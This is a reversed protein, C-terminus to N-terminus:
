APLTLHDEWGREHQKALEYPLCSHVPGRAPCHQPSTPSENRSPHCFLIHISSCLNSQIASLVIYCPQIHARSRENPGLCRDRSSISLTSHRWNVLRQKQALFKDSTSHCQFVALGFSINEKWAFNFWLLNSPHETHNSSGPQGCLKPLNSHFDKFLHGEVRCHSNRSHWCVRQHLTSCGQTLSPLHFWISPSKLAELTIGSQTWLTRAPQHWGTTTGLSHQSFLNEELQISFLALKWTWGWLSPSHISRRTTQLSTASYSTVLL